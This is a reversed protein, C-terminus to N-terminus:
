KELIMKRTQSYGDTQLRYFYIGSVPYQIDSLSNFEVEYKGPEKEGNVLTAVERGLMDYIRLIVNSKKYKVNSPVTYWIKTTPNFPNPYNQSLSFDALTQTDDKVSVPIVSATLNVIYTINPSRFTGARIKVYATGPNTQAFVHLSVERTEGPTLPSSGFDITTAISDIFPAFCLSFCLSSQWNAPLDNMTRVMYVTQDQMSTNTVDIIFIMEADLTDVLLTDRPVFTIDQAKISFNGTLIFLWLVNLLMKKKMIM